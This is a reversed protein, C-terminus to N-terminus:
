QVTTSMLKILHGTLYHTKWQLMEDYVDSIDFISMNEYLLDIKTLLFVNNSLIVNDYSIKLARLHIKTKRWGM